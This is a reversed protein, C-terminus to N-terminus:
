ARTLATAGLIGLASTVLIRGPNLGPSKFCNILTDILRQTIFPITIDLGAALVILGALLLAMKKRSSFLAVTRLGANTRSM